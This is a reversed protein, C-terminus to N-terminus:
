PAQHPLDLVRMNEPDAPKLGMKRGTERLRYPSMLNVREVELKAKLDAQQDYRQELRKLEYATDVGEINVWVTALGLVLTLLSLMVIWVVSGDEGHVREAVRLKASRSRPNAQQEELGPLIPKSTCIRLTRAHGCRCVPDHPPCICGKSERRFAHKVRRDELSHFSIVAMRAGPNLRAPIRGLFKDLEDLERNVAIRLAQFTRTAPHNRSKARIKAPYAKLIVEALEVTTELPRVRRADVIARAIRGALPEEGYEAIIRKLEHVPTLNVLRSAPALGSSPDMRMDLPGNQLFSFGREAEDLQMSSVGLDLIAGDLSRWGIEALVDEFHAFSAHAFIIQDSVDALNSQARELTKLDRDIGLVEAEGNAAEILARTHGGLGLTGDMYRGGARPAIWSVIQELLVPIHAM